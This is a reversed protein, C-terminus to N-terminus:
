APEPIHMEFASMVHAQLVRPSEKLLMDIDREACKEKGASICYHEAASELIQNLNLGEGFYVDPKNECFVTFAILSEIIASKYYAPHIQRVADDILQAFIEERSTMSKRVLECDITCESSDIDGMVICNTHAMSNWIKELFDMDFNVILGREVRWEFWNTATIDDESNLNKSEFSFNKSLGQRYIEHQKSLIADIREFLEGPSKSAIEIAMELSWPAGTESSCLKLVNHLHVSRLGEFLYPKTRDLRDLSSFLEQLLCVEIASSSAQVFANLIGEEDASDLSIEMEKPTGLTISIGKAELTKLSEALAAHNRQALVFSKRTLLWDGRIQSIEYVRSIFQEKQPDDWNATSALKKLQEYASVQSKDAQAFLAQIDKAEKSIVPSIRNDTQMPTLCLRPTVMVNEKSARYALSASAYGVNKDFDRSQIDRLTDYLSVASPSHCIKETVEFTFVAAEDYLWNDRIHAIESKLNESVLEPDCNRYDSTVSQLWSLSLCQKDNIKYTQSTALSRVKRRARGSVRLADNAGVQGFTDVLHPASIVNIPAIEDLSEAIVGNEALTKKVEENEAVVVLAVQGCKLKTTRDRIGIKDVDDTLIYGEQILVGTYYISQAWVLPVNDNAIRPQSKPNEKEAAINEKALYYLEPILKIGDIDVAVEELKKRYRAATEEDRDFLANIYLYSFFLPWESEIHEFNALESHEYHLRSPDELATQHGDWLFRKCGYNGGLKELIIDHTEAVLEADSVAFAPFGIVSLLASDVEKSLSERPLLSALGTRALSISDPVTHVQARPNAEKGFLNLGDLALMASKAMGLSSSNIETKGDNIKNGREWIGYDPTRHATAIYYILNQVFDVENYTFIIRLGGATMQALMLLYISTADIQLHGWADDAVVPLGTQTKYKAHLADIPNLTQKFKEVKDSQHMMSKLLGRMLKITAQELEDQKDKDGHRAFAISLAWPAIISYVNDRVWADTYDGHSNVDTSAPLLGTVPNQRSLIVQKIESYLQELRANDKM